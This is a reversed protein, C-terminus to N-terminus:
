RTWTILDECSEHIYWDEANLIGGHFGRVINDPVRVYGRESFFERSPEKPYGRYSDHEYTVVKFIYKDFPIKQLCEWTADPPEIDLSLYDVVNPVNHEAYLKEHDIKLADACVLRDTNRVGDWEALFSPEIDLSLGKWEYELELVHTNSGKIPGQCGYEVWFGKRLSNLTSIVFSDQKCDSPM